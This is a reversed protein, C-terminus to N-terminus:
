RAEKNAERAWDRLTARGDNCKDFADAWDDIRAVLDRNSRIPRDGPLACDAMM